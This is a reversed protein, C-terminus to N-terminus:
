GLEGYTNDGWSYVNGVQTLALAHFKGMTIKTVKSDNTNPMKICTMRRKKAGNFWEGWMLIRGSELVIASRNQGAFINSVSFDPDKMIEGEGGM